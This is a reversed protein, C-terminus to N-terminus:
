SSMRGAHDQGLRDAAQQLRPLFTEAPELSAGGHCGSEHEFRFGKVERWGAQRTRVMTGDCSGLLTDGERVPTPPQDMDRGAQWGASLCHRRITEDDLQVNLVRRAVIEAKHFSALSAGLLGTLQQLLGSFSEPMLRQATHECSGCHPCRWYIGSVEIVGLSSRLTRRRVGQHRRRQGCGSCARASEQQADVAEQVMSQLLRGLLARGEDRVQEELQQLDHEDRLDQAQRSLTKVWQAFEGIIADLGEATHMRAELM